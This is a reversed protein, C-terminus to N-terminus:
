GVTAPSPASSALIQVESGIPVFGLGLFARLSRANGPAVAAFVPAGAGIHGLAEAVLARGWGKGQGEPAAEVSLELRGALGDALTVLGREDGLIQVRHRLAKAHIVRPHAALDPREPLRAGAGTGRGVLLADIVGITGGEGLWSLVAPDLAGGFGDAGCGVADEHTVGAAIIAHGTFCVVARLGAAPPPLVTVGGDVPPFRGAAADLMLQHLPHM